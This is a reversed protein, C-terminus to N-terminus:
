IRNYKIVFNISLNVLCLLSKFWGYGLYIKYVRYGDILKQVSSSSLSNETKRWNSLTKNLGVLEIKDKALKLWFVYDEKTKLPAFKYKNNKLINKRIMVTSLGIDCSNILKNFTMLKKVKILGILKEKDNIINYNTFSFKIKKKEMFKLQLQLKNKKWVDDSDCFAIFKGRAIKMGINRSIGAGQNKKNFILKIRRDKKIIKKLLNNSSKSNEDDVIILEFKKYTQNLISKITKEIYKKKKFYPIIVSVLSSM